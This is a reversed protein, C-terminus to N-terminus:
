CCDDHNTNICSCEQTRDVALMKWSKRLRPLVLDRVAPRGISRMWEKSAPTMSSSNHSPRRFWSTNTMKWLAREASRWKWCSRAPRITTMLPRSDPYHRTHTKPSRSVVASSRDAPSQSATPFSKNRNPLHPRSPPHCFRRAPRHRRQSLHRVPRTPTRISQSSSRAASQRPLVPAPGITRPLIPAFRPGPLPLIPPLEPAMFEKPVKTTWTREFAEAAGPVLLGALHLNPDSQSPSTQQSDSNLTPYLALASNFPPPTSEGFSTQPVPQADPM